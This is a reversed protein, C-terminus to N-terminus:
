ANKNLESHLLELFEQLDYSGGDDKMCQNIMYLLQQGSFCIM